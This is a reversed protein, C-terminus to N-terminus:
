RDSGAFGRGTHATTSSVRKEVNVEHVGQLSESLGTSTHADSFARGARSLSAPRDPDLIYVPVRPYQILVKVELLRAAFPLVFHGEM